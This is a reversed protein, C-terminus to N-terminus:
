IVLHKISPEIKLAWEIARQCREQLHLVAVRQMLVIVIVSISPFFTLLLLIRSERVSPSLICCLFVYPLRFLPLLIQELVETKAVQLLFPFQLMGLPFNYM